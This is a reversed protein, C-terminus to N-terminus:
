MRRISGWAATFVVFTVLAVVMFSGMGIEPGYWQILLGMPLAGLPQLGATMQWVAMIRGRVENPSAIQLLTNNLAFAVSSFVGGIGLAALSLAYNHSFSFVLVGVIYVLFCGLMLLGKNKPNGLFALVGLGLVAGWGAMSALWGYGSAGEHLVDRSVLAIFPLYPVVLLTPITHVIMLGLVRKDRWTATFGEVIQTMANGNNRLPRQRTKNSIFMTLVVALVQTAALTAFPAGNGWAAIMVGTLPPAAIRAVNQVISKMAIANALTEDTSIDFIFAQRAPQTLSQIVGGAFALVYVHWLQIAGSLILLALLAAQVVSSATTWIIVQRRPFRDALYGGLPATLTGVGARFASITGLQVASGTLDYALWAMGIQQAWQGFGLALTSLGLYRFDADEFSVFAAPLRFRSPPPAPAATAVDASAGTSPDPSTM